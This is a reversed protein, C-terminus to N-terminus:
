INVSRKDSFRSGLKEDLMAGLEYVNGETLESKHIIFARRKDIFIFFYNMTEVAHHLSSYPFTKNVTFNKGTKQEDLVDEAFSLDIVFDYSPLKMKGCDEKLIKIIDKAAWLALLASIVILFTVEKGPYKRSYFLLYIMASLSGAFWLCDSTIYKLIYPLKTLAYLARLHHQQYKVSARVM